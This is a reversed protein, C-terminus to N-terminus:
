CAPCHLSQRLAYSSPSRAMIASSSVNRLCDLQSVGKPPKGCGAQSALADGYVAMYAPTTYAFGAPNSQQIVRQFLGARM